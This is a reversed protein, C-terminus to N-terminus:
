LRRDYSSEDLYICLQNLEMMVIRGAAITGMKGLIGRTCSAGGVGDLYIRLAEWVVDRARAFISM